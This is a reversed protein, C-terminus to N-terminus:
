EIALEIVQGSGAGVSRAPIRCGILIEREHPSKRWGSMQVGAQREDM